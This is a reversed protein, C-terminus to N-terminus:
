PADVKEKTVKPGELWAAYLAPSGHCVSPMDNYVYAAIAQLQMVNRSDARGVAGLLDNEIVAQLFGGLPRRQQVYADLSERIDETPWYSRSM